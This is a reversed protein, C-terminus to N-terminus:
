EDDGTVKLHNARSVANKLSVHLKKLAQLELAAGRRTEDDTADANVMKAILGEEEFEFWRKISPDDLMIELSRGIEIARQKEDETM